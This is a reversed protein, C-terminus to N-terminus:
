SAVYNSYFMAEYLSWHRLLMFRFEKEFIIRGAESTMVETKDDGIAYVGRDEDQMAGADQPFIREQHERLDNALYNYGGQDLKNNLYSDTVGVIGLWLLDPVDGFRSQKALRYAVWAAPSGNHTGTTYFNNIRQQRSQASIGM